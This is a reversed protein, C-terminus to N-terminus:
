VLGVELHHLVAGDYLKDISVVRYAQGGFVISDGYQFTVDQPRSNQVDYFMVASLRIETNAGSVGRDLVIKGSPEFRVNTLTRNDPYTENGWEDKTPVGYHHAANHILLHRPIPHARISM